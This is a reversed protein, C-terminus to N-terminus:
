AYQFDWISTMSFFFMCIVAYQRKVNNCKNNNTTSIMQSRFFPSSRDTETKQTKQVRINDVILQTPHDSILQSSGRWMRRMLVWCGVLLYWWYLLLDSYADTIPNTFSSLRLSLKVNYKRYRNMEGTLLLSSSDNACGLGFAM